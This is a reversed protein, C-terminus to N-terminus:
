HCYKKDIEERVLEVFGDYLSKVNKASSDLILNFLGAGKIFHFMIIKLATNSIKFPLSMKKNPNYCTLPKILDKNITQIYSWQASSEENIGACDKYAPPIYVRHNNNFKQDELIYPQKHRSAKYSLIPICLCSNIHERSNLPNFWDITYNQILIVPRFKGHIAQLYEDFEIGFYKKVYGSTNREMEEKTTYKRAIWTSNPENDGAYYQKEVMYWRFKKEYWVPANYIQGPVFKDNNTLWEYFTCNESIADLITDYLDIIGSSTSSM